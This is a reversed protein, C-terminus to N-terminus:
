KVEATHKDVCDDDDDDGDPRDHSGADGEDAVQGAVLHLMDHLRLWRHGAVKNAQKKHSAVIENLKKQASVVIANSMKELERVAPVM